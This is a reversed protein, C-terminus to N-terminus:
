EDPAVPDPQDPSVEGRKIAAYIFNESPVPSGAMRRLMLLQGIHAMSDSLPGQLLQEETVTNPKRAQFSKDLKALINYFEDVEADWPKMDFYTTDYHEFFSHTYTLVGTIHHLTEQPTRVGKGIQLDPYTQPANKISKTAHYAISALFHRLMECKGSM